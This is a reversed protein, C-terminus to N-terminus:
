SISSCYYCAQRRYDTYSKIGVGSMGHDIL